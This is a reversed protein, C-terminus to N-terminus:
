ASSASSDKRLSVYAADAIARAQAVFRETSFGRAHTLARRRVDNRLNADLAVESVRTVAEDESQWLLRQDGVVEPSGGSGHPFVLCGARLMEATAMGFHEGEMAQLGYRSQGMLRNLQERTLNERFEIWDRDRAAFRHLRRTYAPDVPSGVILLRADPIAHARLRRVISMAVEVRKSGHFRGVCLFTNSRADWPLGAGPDIVPPYLVRAAPVGESRLLGDATWQSNAVTVNKRADDWPLGMLRDCLAFYLNVIPALRRPTPRLATPFHLYQVGPRTFAGYNDATMLMDYHNALPRAYRLVSCMRLRSLRHEPLSSLWSLPAPIVHRAVADPIATGYFANTAAPTWPSATLTAVEHPGALAHVLWAAVANGGGPPELSRQVLLIRM